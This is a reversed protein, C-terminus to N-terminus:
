HKKTCKAMRDYLVVNVAAALNMCIKTPVYIVDRCWGTIEKGLTADEAGFIYFANDPHCYKYLPTAGEIIDVAVPVCNYPIVSKLNINNLVPIHKYASPTDTGVRTYRKGQIAIMNADYAFAARLVGGINEPTKPNHLGIITLM